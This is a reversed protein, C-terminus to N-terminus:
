RRSAWITPMTKGCPRSGSGPWTTRSSNITTCRSAATSTSAPTSPPNWALYGGSTFDNYLPPPLKQENVFASAKVPNTVELVGASSEHLQADWRYFNNSAVFWGALVFVPLLGAVMATRLRDRTAPRLVAASWRRGLLALCQGVFPAAGLAFLAM